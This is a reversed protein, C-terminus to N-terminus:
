RIRPLQMTPKRRGDSYDMLMDMTWCGPFPCVYPSLDKIEEPWVFPELLEVTMIKQSKPRRLRGQGGNSSSLRGHQERVVKQQKVTSRVHIVDVNYLSKLYSRMDLKNFRLPVDFSAYKPALHPTRYFTVVFKPSCM